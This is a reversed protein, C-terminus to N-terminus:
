NDLFDDLWAALARGRILMVLGALAPLSRLICPLMEVATKNTAAKTLPEALLALSVGILAVAVFRVLMLAGRESADM